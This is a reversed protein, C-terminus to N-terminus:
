WSSQGLLSPALLPFTFAVGIIVHLNEIAHGLQTLIYPSKNKVIDGPGPLPLDKALSLVKGGDGISAVEAELLLIVNHVMRFKCTKIQSRLEISVTSVFFTM